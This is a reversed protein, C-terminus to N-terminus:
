GEKEEGLEIRCEECLFQGEVEKLDESWQGCRDCYGSIPTEEEAEEYEIKAKEIMIEILEPTVSLIDRSTIIGVLEGKHMVGLRRVNLQSMLRAAEVLTADAEITPLSKTMVEEVRLRSAKEDEAAVREVIDRATVVGVPEGNRDLVVVGGIRHRRMLQAAELVTSGERVWIVPSSMADRVLIRGRVGLEGVISGL